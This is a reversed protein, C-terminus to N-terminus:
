HRTLPARQAPPRGPEHKQDDSLYNALLLELGAMLWKNWAVSTRSAQTADSMHESLLDAIATQYYSIAGIIYRPPVPGLSPRHIPINVHMQSTGALYRAFGENKPATATARLWSIMTQKNSELRKEDPEDDDNVFFQRADPYHLFHSYLADTLRRAHRLIIPASAKIRQRDEESLGVFDVMEDLRTPWHIMESM